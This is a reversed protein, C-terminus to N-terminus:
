NADFHVDFGADLLRRQYEATQEHMLRRLLIYYAAAIHGVLPIASILVYTWRIKAWPEFQGVARTDGFIGVAMLVSIASFAYALIAGMGLGAFVNLAFLVVGAIQALAIVAAWGTLSYDQQSLFQLYEDVTRDGIDIGYRQEFRKRREEPDYNAGTFLPDDKFAGEEFTAECETCVAAEDATEAECQPCTPM